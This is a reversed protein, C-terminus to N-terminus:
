KPTQREDHEICVLDDGGISRCRWDPGFGTALRWNPHSLVFIVGAALVLSV